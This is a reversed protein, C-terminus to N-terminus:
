ILLGLRIMVLASIIDTYRGLANPIGGHGYGHIEGIIFHVLCMCQFRTHCSAVIGCPLCEQCVREIEESATKGDEVMPSFSQTFPGNIPLFSGYVELVKM